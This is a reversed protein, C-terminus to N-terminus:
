RVKWSLLMLPFNWPVIAGIVGVPAWDKMEDDMLQAWGSHHYLHRAVLPVDCDRSERIPKGNDLSELVSILRMHKQVHRAISYIHRARVHGPLTSWSEFAKRACKVALEVDEETGQVTNALLEGTAPNYSSYTKRGEPRVWQNNIFHGFNREHDELWAQAVAPSEPAPGYELSDFIEAVSPKKSMEPVSSIEV